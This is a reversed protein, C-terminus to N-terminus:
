TAPPTYLDVMRFSRYTYNTDAIQFDISGVPTFEYVQTYGNPGSINQYGSNFWYGGNALMQASGLGPSYSKLDDNVTLTATLNGEDLLLSQGRSSEKKGPNMAKRTNGNDFVTLLDENGQEYGVDHQHTFWPSPDTSSIAFDGGAGLRWLVNGSGTGNAYDVKIAWDQNRMSVLFDGSSPLYIISNGHTWDNASSALKLQPCGQLGAQCTDNLTARRNIDLHDYANWHWKLQLNKDLLVIMEGVIDVTTASGQTGPPYLREVSCLAAIDGNPLQIVDHSFDDIPDTGAAILQESVRQANTALLKNGALDVQVLLQSASATSSQSGVGNLIFFMTGGPLARTLISGEQSTTLEPAFYWLINGALDTATASIAPKPSLEIHSNLIVKDAIDAQASPPVQVVYSPLSASQTGTVFTLDPGPVSVGNTVVEHHMTYTSQQYMGAVYFNMSGAHCARLDTVDSIAAGSKTFRVRMQSGSPCTPASYLAVLPNSTSSVAATTGIVRSRIGYPISVQATQLTSNNRATVQVHYVSEVLSPAWTFTAQQTLDQMLQFPNGGLQVAYSYSLAGANTDTATATFLIPTGLLQPSPLSSKVSLQISASLPLACLILCLNRFM